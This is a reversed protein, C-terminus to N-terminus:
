VILCTFCSVQRFSFFDEGESSSLIRPVVDVVCACKLDRVFFESQFTLTFFFGFDFGFGCGFALLWFGFSFFFNFYFAFLFSFALLLFCPAFFRILRKSSGVTKWNLLYCHSHAVNATATAVVIGVAVTSPFIHFSIADM